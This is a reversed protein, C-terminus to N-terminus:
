LYILSVTLFAWLGINVLFPVDRIMLETPSGYDARQTIGYFRYLGYAIFPITVPLWGTGFQAKTAADFTYAAYSAATMGASVGMTVRVHELRYHKLVERTRGESGVTLLEHKRKGLALYLSLLFTCVMLWISIPVGIAVAGGLVRLLFGTAIVGADVFALNKM